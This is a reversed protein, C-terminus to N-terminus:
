SQLAEAILGATLPQNYYQNELCRQHGRLAIMQRRADDALLDRCVLACEEANSWFVAEEGECYMQQHEVTREACLLGGLAPIELSRTTHLDRNGKSLLGLCIKACQIAHAYEEDSRTGPGKWFRRLVPWEPAKKWHDGYITLPVGREILGAMFAGREPMWTGIFVVESDWRRHDEETLARPAHAVEDASRVVLRVQKAKLGRAEAVNEQRVVAVLDYVPVAMKYLLWANGDRTGYPDDHNFNVVPGFRQQLHSVLRPGVLRGGEVWTVDFQRDGVQKMVHRLILREALLGGTLFHFKTHVWGKVISEPPVLTVVHGLRALADARHRSTGSDYGLFLVHMTTRILGTM